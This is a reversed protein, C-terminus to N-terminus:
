TRPTASAETALRAAESTSARRARWGAAEDLALLDVKALRIEPRARVEFCAWGDRRHPRASSAVPEARKPPARSAQTPSRLLLPAEPNRGGIRHNYFSFIM